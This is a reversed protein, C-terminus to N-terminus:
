LIRSEESQYGCGITGCEFIIILNQVVLTWHNSNSNIVALIIDQAM